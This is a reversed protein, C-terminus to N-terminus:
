ISDIPADDLAGGARAFRTGFRILFDAEPAVRLLQVKSIHPLGFRLVLHANNKGYRNNAGRHFCNNWILFNACSCTGTASSAGCICVRACM